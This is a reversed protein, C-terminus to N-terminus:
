VEESREIEALYDIWWQPDKRMRWRPVPLGLSSYHEELAEDIKQAVEINRMRKTLTEMHIKWMPDTSENPIKESM